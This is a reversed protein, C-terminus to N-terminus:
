YYVTVVVIKIFIKFCNRTHSFYIVIVSVKIKHCKLLLGFYVLIFTSIKKKRQTQIEVFGGGRRWNGLNEAKLIIHTINYM